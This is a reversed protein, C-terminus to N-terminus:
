VDGEVNRTAGKKAGLFTRLITQWEEAEQRLTERLKELGDSLKSIEEQIDQGLVKELFASHTSITFLQMTGHINVEVEDPHNLEQKTFGALLQKEEDQDDEQDDDNVPCAAARRAARRELKWLAVRGSGVEAARAARKEEVLRKREQVLALRKIRLFDKRLQRLKESDYQPDFLVKIREKDGMSSMGNKAMDLLLAQRHRKAKRRGAWGRFVRQVDIACDRRHVFQGFRYELARERSGRMMQRLLKLQRVYVRWSEFRMRKNEGLRLRLKKRVVRRQRLKQRLVNRAFRNRAMGQIMVAADRQECRIQFRLRAVFGRGVRQLDSVASKVRARRLQNANRRWRSVCFELLHLGTRNSLYKVHKCVRTHHRWAEFTQLVRNGWLHMLFEKVKQNQQAMKRRALRLVAKALVTRAFRQLVRAARWDKRKKDVRRRAQVRRWHCQVAIAGCLKEIKRDAVLQRWTRWTTEVSRTTSLSALLRRKVLFRVNAHWTGMARVLTRQTMRKLSMRIIEEQRTREAEDQAHKRQREALAHREQAALKRLKDLKKRHKRHARVMRIFDRKSALSVPLLSELQMPPPLFMGQEHIAVEDDDDEDEEDNKQEDEKPGLRSAEFAEEGEDDESDSQEASPLSLKSRSKLPQLALPKFMASYAERKRKARKKSVEREREERDLEALMELREAKEEAERLLKRCATCARQSTRQVAERGSSRKRGLVDEAKCRLCRINLTKNLESERFLDQVDRQYFDFVMGQLPHEVGRRRVRVGFDALEALRGIESGHKHQREKERQRRQTTDAGRSRADSRRGATKAAGSGWVEAAGGRQKPAAAGRSRKRRTAGGRMVPTCVGANRKRGPSMSVLLSLSARVRLRWLKSSAIASVKELIRDVQHELDRRDANPNFPVAIIERLRNIAPVVGDKEFGLEKLKVWTPEPIAQDLNDFTAFDFEFAVRQIHVSVIQLGARHAVVLELLCYPRSLYNKTLLVVLAKASRVHESLKGLDDLDDVDLFPQLKREMFTKIIRATPGAEAKYHSLLGRKTPTSQRRQCIIAAALGVLVVSAASAAVIATSIDQGGTGLPSADPVVAPSQFKACEGLDSCVILASDASIVPSAHIRAGMEFTQNVDLSISTVHVTGNYDALFVNGACDIAPSAFVEGELSLERVLGFDATQLKRVAFDHSGFFVHTTFVAATSHIVNSTVTIKNGGVVQGTGGDVDYFKFDYSGILVNSNPQLVPSALFSLGDANFRWLETPETLGDQLKVVFGAHCSVVIGGDMSIAPTSVVIGCELDFSWLRAGSAAVKFLFGDISAFFMDGNANIAIGSHVPQNATTPNFIPHGQADIKRIGDNTGFVFGGDPLPTIAGRLGSLPENYSWVLEGDKTLKYVNEATSFVISGDMLAVPTGFVRSGDTDNFRWVEELQTDLALTDRGWRDGREWRFGPWVAGEQYGDLDLNECMGAAAYIAHAAVWAALFLKVM